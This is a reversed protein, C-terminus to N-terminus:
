PTNGDQGSTYTLDDLYLNQGNGDVWTTLIGFRNAVYTLLSFGFLVDAAGILGPKWIGLGPVVMSVLAVICTILLAISTAKDTDRVKVDSDRAVSSVYRLAAM